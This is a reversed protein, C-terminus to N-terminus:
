RGRGAPYTQRQPIAKCPYRHVYLDPAAGSPSDVVIKRPEGEIPLGCTDCTRM